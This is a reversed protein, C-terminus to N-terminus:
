DQKNEVFYYNVGLQVGPEMDSKTKSTKLLTCLLWTRGPGSRRSKTKSTKLEYRVYGDGLM